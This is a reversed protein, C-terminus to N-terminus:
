LVPVTQSPRPRCSNSQHCCLAVLMLLSLTGREPFSVLGAKMMYFKAWHARNHLVRQKGSPLLQDREDPTLNFEDGLQKEADLVRLEGVAAREFLPLMLTQYDPIPM